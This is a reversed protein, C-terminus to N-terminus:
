GIGYGDLERGRTKSEARSRAIRAERERKKRCADCRNNGGGTWGARTVGCDGCWGWALSAGPPRGAPTQSPSSQSGRVPAPASRPAVRAAGDAGGGAPEDDGEDRDQQDNHSDSLCYLSAGCECSAPHRVGILGLEAMGNLVAAQQAGTLELHTVRPEAGHLQARDLERLAAITDGRELAARAGAVVGAFDEALARRAQKIRDERALMPDLRDLLESAARVKATSAGSALLEEMARWALERLREERDGSQEAQKRARAQGGRRGLEARDVSPSHVHCYGDERARRPCRDGARTIALCKPQEVAAHGSRM